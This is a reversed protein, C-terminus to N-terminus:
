SPTNLRKLQDLGSQLIITAAMQDIHQARRDRSLNLDNIMADDAAQSTLREDVFAIPPCPRNHDDAYDMLNKAFQRVSQARRGERGDMHLPLGIIIGGIKRNDIIKFLQDAVKGFKGMKITKVPLAMTKAADSVAIGTRKKGLDLGLLIEKPGLREKMSKLDVISLQRM